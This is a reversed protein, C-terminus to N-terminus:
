HKKSQSEADIDHLTIPTDNVIIAIANVLGAYLSISCFLISILIKNM